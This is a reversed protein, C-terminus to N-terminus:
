PALPLEITVTQNAQDPLYFPASAALMPGGAGDYITWRFPGQGFDKAAVWWTKKNGQDLTGQWGEVDRWDGANDQWQVITWVRAPVALANLEIYAGVPSNSSDNDEKSSNESSVPTPTDRDPLDPGAQTALPPWVLLQIAWLATVMLIFLTTQNKNM